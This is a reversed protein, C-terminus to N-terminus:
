GTSEVHVGAEGAEEGGVVLPGGSHAVGLGVEELSGCLSLRGLHTERSASASTCVSVLLVCTSQIPHLSERPGSLTTVAELGPSMKVCRLM